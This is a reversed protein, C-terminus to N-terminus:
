NRCAKGVNKGLSFCLCISNFNKNEKGDIFDERDGSAINYEIGYINLVNTAIRVLLKRKDSPSNNNKFDELAM